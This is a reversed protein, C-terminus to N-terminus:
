RQDTFGTEAGQLVGCEICRSVERRAPRYGHSHAQANSQHAGQLQRETVMDEGAEFM